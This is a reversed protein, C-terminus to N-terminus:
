FEALIKDLTAQLVAPEDGVLSVSYLVGETQWYADLTDYGVSADPIVVAVPAGGATQRSQKEFSPHSQWVHGTSYEGTEEQLTASFAVRVDGDLYGTRVVINRNLRATVQVHRRSDLNIGNAFSVGYSDAHTMWNANELPNTIKLGIEKEAEAWTDGHIYVIDWLKSSAMKELETMQQYQEMQAKMAEHRWVTSLDTGKLQAWIRYGSEPSGSQADTVRVQLTPKYKDTLLLEGDLMSIRVYRLDIYQSIIGELGEVQEYLEVVLLGTTDEVDLAAIRYEMMYPILKKHIAELEALSMNSSRGSEGIRKMLTCLAENETTWSVDVAQSPYDPCITVAVADEGYQLVIVQQEMYLFFTCETKDPPKLSQSSILAKIWSSAVPEKPFDKKELRNLCQVLEQIESDSLMFYFEEDRTIRVQGYEIDWSRLGGLEKLPTKSSLPDTLLCVALVACAAVSLLVAWFGPKRWAALNRIRKGTDGEGFALPIGPVARRGTALSLLLAAYDARQATGMHKVVAEDCSMEMDRCALLYCLWMLPNFWHISLALFALLKVLHDMRRIHHREHQLIYAQQEGSLGRPLYIRPRLLGIVFATGVNDAIYINERLHVAKKLKRRLLLYSILGYLLMGAMGAAWVYQGWLVTLDGPSLSVTQETVTTVASVVPVEGQIVQSVTSGVQSIPMETENLTYQESVPQIEPMMSVPLEISVPCLLRFLVLAWLAYSFVKPARRLLLRAVLVVAAVLSAAKTMDLVQMFLEDLM